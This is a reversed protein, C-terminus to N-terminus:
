IATPCKKTIYVYYPCIELICVQPAMLQTHQLLQSSIKQKPFNSVTSKLITQLNNVKGMVQLHYFCFFMSQLCPFWM